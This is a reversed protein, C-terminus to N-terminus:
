VSVPKRERIVLRVLVMLVASVSFLVLLFSPSNGKGPNSIIPSLNNKQENQLKIYELQLLSDQIYQLSDLIRYQKREDQFRFANFPEEPKKKVTDSSLAGYGNRVNRVVVSDNIPIYEFYRANMMMTEDIGFNSNPDIFYSVSTGSHSKHAILPTQANLKSFSLLAFLLMLTGSLHIPKRDRIVLRVLIMLVASVSFLVLLFPPNGNNRKPTGIVPSLDNENSKQAKKYEEIMLSDNMKQISDRIVRWKRLDEERFSDIHEKQENKLTDIAITTNRFSTQRIVMSDNLSRYFRQEREPFIEIAGFNMNPDIFYSVSTGSHSKHVILPTQSYALFAFSCILFSFLTKM